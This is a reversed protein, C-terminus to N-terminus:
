RYMKSVNVTYQQVYEAETQTSDIKQWNRVVFQKKFKVQYEYNLQMSYIM